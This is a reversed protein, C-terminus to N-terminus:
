IDLAEEVGVETYVYEELTELQERILDLYDDSDFEELSESKFYCDMITKKIEDSIDSNNPLDNFFYSYTFKEKSWRKNYVYPYIINKFINQYFEEMKDITETVISCMVRNLDFKECFCMSLLIKQAYVPKSDWTINATNLKNQKQEYFKIKKYIDTEPILLKNSVLEIYQKRDLFNSIRVINPIVM